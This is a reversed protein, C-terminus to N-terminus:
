GSKIKKVYICACYNPILFEDPKASGEIKLSVKALKQRCIHAHDQRTAVGRSCNEHPSRFCYFNAQDDTDLIFRHVYKCVATAITQFPQGDITKLTKMKGNVNELEALTMTRRNSDCHPIYGNRDALDDDDDDDDLGEVEDGVIM